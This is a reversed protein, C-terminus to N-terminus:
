CCKRRKKYLRTSFSIITNYIDHSHSRMSRQLNRTKTYNMEVQLKKDNPRRNSWISTSNSGPHRKYLWFLHCVRFVLFTLFDSFSLALNTMDNIKEIKKSSELYIRYSLLTIMHLLYISRLIYIIRFYYKHSYSSYPFFFCIRFIKFYANFTEFFVPKRVIIAMNNINDASYLVHFNSIFSPVWILFQTM